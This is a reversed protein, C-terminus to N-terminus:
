REVGVAMLRAVKAVWEPEPCRTSCLTIGQPLRIEFEGNDRSVEVRAFKPGAGGHAPALKGKWYYLMTTSIKKRRCFDYATLGSRDFEQVRARWQDQRDQDTM